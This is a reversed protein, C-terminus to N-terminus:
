PPLPSLMADDQVPLARGRSDRSQLSGDAQLAFTRRSGGRGELRLLAGDQRWRGDDAFREGGEAALYTEELRYRQRGGDRELVLRVAIATCDACPLTGRWELRGDGPAIAPPPPARGCHALLLVALLAFAPKASVVM